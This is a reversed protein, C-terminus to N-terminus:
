IANMAFNTANGALKIANEAINSTMEDFGGFRNKQEPERLKEGALRLAEQSIKCGFENLCGM